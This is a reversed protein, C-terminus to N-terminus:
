AISKEVNKLPPSYGQSPFLDFQSSLDMSYRPNWAKETSIGRGIDEGAAQWRMQSVQATACAAREDRDGNRPGNEGNKDVM